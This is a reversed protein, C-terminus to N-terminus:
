SAADLRAVKVGVAASAAPLPWVTVTLSARSTAPFPNAAGSPQDNPVAPVAGAGVHGQVRNLGDSVGATALAFSGKGTDTPM